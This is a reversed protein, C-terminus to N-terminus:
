HDQEIKMLQHSLEKNQKM